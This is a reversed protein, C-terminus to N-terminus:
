VAPAGDGEGEVDPRAHLAANLQDIVVIWDADEIREERLLDAQSSSWFPAEELRMDDPLPGHGAIFARISANDDPLGLQAFLESFPHVTQDM